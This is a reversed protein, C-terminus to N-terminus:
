ILTLTTFFFREDYMTGILIYVHSQGATKGDMGEKRRVM